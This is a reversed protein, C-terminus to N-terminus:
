NRNILFEKSRKNYMLNCSNVIYKGATISIQNAGQKKKASRRQLLM